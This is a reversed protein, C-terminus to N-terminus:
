LSLLLVLICCIALIAISFLQVARVYMACAFRLSFYSFGCVALVLVSVAEFRSMSFVAQLPYRQAM